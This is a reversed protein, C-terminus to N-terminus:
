RTRSNDPNGKLRRLAGNHKLVTNKKQTYVVGETGDVVVTQGDKLVSTADGTGTVAPIGLRKATIAAPCFKGGLDTVIAEAKAVYPEHEPETRETVIVEGPKIKDMAVSDNSTNSLRAVVRVIGAGIGPSAAVGELIKKGKFAQLEAWNARKAAEVAKEKAWKAKRAAAEEPTEPKIPKLKSEFEALRKEFYSTNKDAM